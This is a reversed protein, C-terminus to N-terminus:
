SREEEMLERIRERARHLRTWVTNVSIDLAAAVDSTDLQEILCLVVIERLPPSLRALVRDVDLRQDVPNTTTWVSQKPRALHALLRQHLWRGEGHRRAKRVAIGCLWGRLTNGSRYRHAVQQLTLFVEHCLDEADAANMRGAQRQIVANVIGRYREYIPGLARADGAKLQEMLADDSPEQPQEMSSAM